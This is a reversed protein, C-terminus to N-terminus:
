VHVEIVVLRVLGLIRGLSLGTLGRFFPSFRRSSVRRRSSPFIPFIGDTNTLCRAPVRRDVIAFLGDPLLSATVLSAKLLFESVRADYSRCACDSLGAIEGNGSSLGLFASPAPNKGAGAIQRNARATGFLRALRSRGSRASPCRDATAGAQMARYFNRPNPATRATARKGENVKVKQAAPRRFSSLSPPQNRSRM